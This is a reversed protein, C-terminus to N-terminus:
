CDLQIEGFDKEFEEFSTIYQKKPNSYEVYLCMREGTKENIVNSDLLVCTREEKIQLYVM